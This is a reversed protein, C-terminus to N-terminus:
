LGILILFYNFFYSFSNCSCKYFTIDFTLINCPNCHYNCVWGFKERLTKTFVRTTDLDVKKCWAITIRPDIYNVKSTSTAVEKLNDKDQKKLKAKKIKVELELIILVHIFYTNMISKNRLMSEIKNQCKEESPPCPRKDKEEEDDGKKKKKDEKKEPTKGKKWIKM